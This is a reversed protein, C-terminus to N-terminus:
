GEEKLTESKGQQCAALPQVGPVLGQTQETVVPGSEGGAFQTAHCYILQSPAAQFNCFVPVRLSVLVHSPLSWRPTGLEGM